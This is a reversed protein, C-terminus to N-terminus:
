GVATYEDTTETKGKGDLASIWDSLASPENRKSSTLPIQNDSLSMWAWAM